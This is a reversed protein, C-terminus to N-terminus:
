KSLKFSHNKFENYRIQYRARIEDEDLMYLERHKLMHRKLNQSHMTRLCVTCEIKRHRNSTRSKTAIDQNILTITVDKEDVLDSNSSEDMMM